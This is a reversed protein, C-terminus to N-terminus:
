AVTKGQTAESLPVEKGEKNVVMAGKTIEEFTPPKWPMELGKPDGSIAARGDTTIVEGTAPDLIVVSPIGRVKFKKSLSEKLERKDYPLALWPQEAYYEKFAAEDRDSSVFVIELGKAQLNALYAKSLEPTFGRCPPCWHASFYLGVAKKGKLATATPVPGDKGVLEDGLLEVFASGGM